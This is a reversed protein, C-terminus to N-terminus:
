QALSLMYLRKQLVVDAVSLVGPKDSAGTAADITHTPRAFVPQYNPSVFTM